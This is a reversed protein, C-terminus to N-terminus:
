GEGPFHEDVVAAFKKILYRNTLRISEYRTGVRGTEHPLYLVVRDVIFFPPGTDDIKAVNLGAEEWEEVTDDDVDTAAVDVTADGESLLETLSERIRKDKWWSGDRCFCLVGSSAGRIDEALRGFAAQQDKILWVEDTGSGEGAMELIEDLKSVDEAMKMAVDLHEKLAISPPIPRYVVPAGRKGTGGEGEGASSEFFGEDTLKKLKEGATSQTGIEEVHEFVDRSTVERSKLALVYIEVEDSAMGSHELFRRTRGLIQEEDEPDVSGSPVAEM